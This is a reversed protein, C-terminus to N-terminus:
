KTLVGAIAKKKATNVVEKGAEQMEGLYLAGFPASRGNNPRLAGENRKITGQRVSMRAHVRM